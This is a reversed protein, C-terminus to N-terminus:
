PRKRSLMSIGVGLWREDGSEFRVKVYTDTKELVECRVGAEYVGDIDMSAADSLMSGSPAPTFGEVFALGTCTIYRVNDKSM